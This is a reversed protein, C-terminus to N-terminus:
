ECDGAIEWFEESELVESNAEQFEAWTCGYSPKNDWIWNAVRDIQADCELGMDSAWQHADRTSNLTMFETIM